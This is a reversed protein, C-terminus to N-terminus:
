CPLGAPVAMTPLTIVFPSGLGRGASYAAVSGGHTMVIKRVVTLGIGVGVESFGVAHTDQMFPEFITQLAKPEIEIGSDAVTVLLKGPDVAISLRSRGAEQAYTTANLLLNGFVQALRVPDGLVGLPGPPVDVVLTQRRRHMEPGHIRVAENVIEAM